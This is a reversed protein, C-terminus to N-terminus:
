GGTLVAVLADRSLRRKPVFGRAHRERAMADLEEEEHTSTLVVQAGPEVEALRQAVDLGSGDPLNLDLLVLEPHLRTAAEVGAAGDPAEGVVSWGDGDLLRRALTRFGAHDDVILVTCGVRDTHRALALDPLPVIRRTPNPHGGRRM